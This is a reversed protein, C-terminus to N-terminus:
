SAEQVYETQLYQRHLVSNSSERLEFGYGDQDCTGDRFVPPFVNASERRPDRIFTLERPVSKNWSKVLQLMVVAKFYSDAASHIVTGTLMEANFACRTLGQPLNVRGQQGLPNESRRGGGEPPPEKERLGMMAM